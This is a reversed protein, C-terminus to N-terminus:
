ESESVFMSKCRESGVLQLLDGWSEVLLQNKGCEGWSDGRLRNLVVFGENVDDGVIKGWWSHNM